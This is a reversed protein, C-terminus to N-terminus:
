RLTQFFNQSDSKKHKVQYVEGFAGQGVKHILTYDKLDITNPLDMTISINNYAM